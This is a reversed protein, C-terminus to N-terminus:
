DGQTCLECHTSGVLIQVLLCFNNRNMDQTAPTSSELLKTLQKEMYLLILLVWVASYLSVEVSKMRVDDLNPDKKVLFDKGRMCTCLEMM